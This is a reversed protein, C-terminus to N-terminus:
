ARPKVAVSPASAITLCIGFELLVDIREQPAASGDRHTTIQTSTAIDTSASDDASEIAPQDLPRLKDAFGMDCAPVILRKLPKEDNNM